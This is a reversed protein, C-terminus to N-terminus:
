ILRLQRAELTEIRMRERSRISNLIGNQIEAPIRLKEEGDRYAVVIKM